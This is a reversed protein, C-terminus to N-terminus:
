SAAGLSVCDAVLALADALLDAAGTALAVVVLLSWGRCGVLWGTWRRRQRKGSMVTLVSRAHTLM